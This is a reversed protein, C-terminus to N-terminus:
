ITKYQLSMTATVMKEYLYSRDYAAQTYLTKYMKGFAGDKLCDERLKKHMDLFTSYPTYRTGVQLLHGEIARMFTKFTSNM